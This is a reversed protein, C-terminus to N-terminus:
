FIRIREEPKKYLIDNEKINFCTYWDNFQCVINNVRLIPPAHVDTFISQLAKQKREKTRWNVAYSIFFQCLEETYSKEEPKLGKKSLRKKLASLAISLGGLDAINESLTLKGNVHEDFYTSESFLKTLAISKQTYLKKEAETWWTHFLGNQDYDKGDEDFAHCMEHGITAGIGGFNWGDSANQHYFPWRLIGSPLILHNGENYYYANVAFVDDDWVHPNIETNARKLEYMSDYEALHFRNQVVNNEDLIINSERHFRTPYAISLFINKVKSKAKEQTSHSFWETMGVREAADNQIEHAISSIHTKVTSPVYANVFEEGLCNSLWKGILKISLRDLSVQEKQGHMTSDFLTFHWTSYPKGLIPLISVILELSLITKWVAISYKKFLINVRELYYSSLVLFTNKLFVSSTSDWGFSSKIFTKWPIHPYKHLLTFGNMLSENDEKTAKILLAVEYEFEIFEDINSITFKSSIKHLTKKYVSYITRKHDTDLNYNSPNLLLLKGPGISLRYLKSNKESTLITCDIITSIQYRILTGFHTGIDELTSCSQIASLLSKLTRLSEPSKNSNTISKAFTGILHMSSNPPTHSAKHKAKEIIHLLEINVQDEIEDSVSYTSLFPPIATQKFWKNNIFTYFDNGPRVSTNKPFLVPNSPLSPTRYKRTKSKTIAEDKDVM